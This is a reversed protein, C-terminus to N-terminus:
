PLTFAVSRQNNTTDQDALGAPLILRARVSFSAGSVLRPGPVPATVTSSAGVGLSPLSLQTAAGDVVLAVGLGSVPQSGRNQVVLSVTGQDRNLSLGSLAPDIRNRNARDLAWGLNVTGRGYDPDAGAAGGDNSYAALIDAAQLPSLNPSQSLLAAIAGSVVPASASTGTFSIRTGAAGAAQVAYGPATLQLGEGSNSFIAQIGAADTTGVSVVGPYAAPWALRAAQDNGAAAVVAVGAAIAREVAEALLPSSAHGGLSVNVVRAGADVAALIGKALSFADSSGDAATVRVSLLNAGPAVGRADPAAGAVLSAVATGHVGDDGPGIVGYGIDLYRVRTGFTADAAAGGDLVAVLVGKGLDSGDTAPDLGLAALLDPGVPAGSRAARAEPPPPSAALPNPGLSAYDPSHAVLEAALAEHDRVRLRVALLADLRELDWSAARARELFRHYAEKDKFALLAEDRRVGAVRLHERLKAALEARPPASRDRALDLVPRATTGRSEVEPADPAPGTAQPSPASLHFITWAGGSVLLYFLVLGARRPHTPPNM